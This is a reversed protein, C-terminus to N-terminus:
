KSTVDYRHAFIVDVYDMGMRDLSERTGEVISNKHSKNRKNEYSPTTM